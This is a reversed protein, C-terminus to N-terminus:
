LRQYRKVLLSIQNGKENKSMAVSKQVGQLLAEIDEATVALEFDYARVLSYLLAKMEVVSFRYNICTRPGGLFTLINSWVGPIDSAAEPLSAWREPKTVGSRSRGTRLRLRFSSTQRRRGQSYRTDSWSRLILRQWPSQLDKAAQRLSAPIPAYLRLTEGDIYNLYSLSNLDIM